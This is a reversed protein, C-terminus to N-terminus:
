RPLPNKSREYDVIFNERLILKGILEVALSVAGLDLQVGATRVLPPHM